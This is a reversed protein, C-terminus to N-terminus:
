AVQVSWLEVQEAVPSPAPPQFWNEIQLNPINQFDAMNRTVLILENALATAAIM